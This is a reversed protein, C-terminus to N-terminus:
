RLMFEPSALLFTNWEQQTGAQDLAHRTAPSLAPEIAEFFLRSSLMPFGTGVSPKGDESDFLGANGGGIARAIEFRKVLQGPSSWAAPALPYGDPTVRGYLPEGLQNLWGVVPKMNTPRKGDYALRLAGVVYHVPDKCVPALTGAFERSDFLVRLVAPIEGRSDLFARSMRRVLPMPAEGLFYVALKGSIFRATAPQAALLDAVQEVEGFGSAAIRQGLLTKDQADHRAPNFEFLGRRLLLPQADAKPKAPGADIGLGTLVRALEQVDQQGYGGDV